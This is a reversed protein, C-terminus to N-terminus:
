FKSSREVRNAICEKRKMEDAWWKSVKFFYKMNVSKCVYLYKFLYILGNTEPNPSIM